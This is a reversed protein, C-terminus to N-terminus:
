GRRDREAGTERAQANLVALRSRNKAMTSIAKKVGTITAGVALMKEM